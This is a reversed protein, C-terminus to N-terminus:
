MIPSIIDTSSASTLILIELTNFDTQTRTGTNRLIKNGIHGTMVVIVMIITIEDFVSMIARM